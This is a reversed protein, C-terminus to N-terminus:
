RRRYATALVVGSLMAPASPDTEGPQAAITAATNTLPNVNSM